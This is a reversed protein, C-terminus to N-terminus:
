PICNRCARSTGQAALSLVHGSGDFAERPRIVSGSQVRRMCLRGRM